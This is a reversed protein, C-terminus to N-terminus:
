DNKLIKIPNVVSAKILQHSVTLATFIFMLIGAIAFTSINIDIRFAFDKLWNHVVFYAVPWALIIGVLMIKILDKSMYLIISSISAGLIKRISIEKLKNKTTFTVLAFLGLCALSISIFTFVSFLKSLRNESQYLHNYETDIFYYEFPKKSQYSKYINSITNIQTSVNIHPNFHVYMSGSHKAFAKLSDSGVTIILPEVKNKLSSINFDKVVGLVNFKTGDMNIPVEIKNKNISLQRMAAENIVANFQTTLEASDATINKWKLGITKFFNNDVTVIQVDLSEETNQKQVSVVSPAQKFMNLTSASVSAVGSQLSVEHRFANYIKVMSPDLPIVMVKDKNMGIDKQQVFRLQEGALLSCIILTQSIFFQFVTLIKQSKLIKNQSFTINAANVFSSKVLYKIFLLSITLLAAILLVLIIVLVISYISLSSALQIDLSQYFFQGLCLFLFLSILFALVFLFISETLFQKGIELQSSGLLRRITTERTRKFSFSISLNLYNIISLILVIIGIGAFIYINTRQSGDGDLPNLHMRELPMLTFQIKSEFITSAKYEMNIKQTLAFQSKPDNLLFYTDYEGLGNDVEASGKTDSILVGADAKRESIPLLFDFDLSSNIPPAKIVGTIKLPVTDNYVLTKGVVDTENFYKKALVDTIVISNPSALVDNKNGYLFSFSFIQFFQEDTILYSEENFVHQINSQLICKKGNKIRVANLVEPSQSKVLKAFQNSLGSLYQDTGDTSKYKAFVKVIRKSNIHFTDFSYENVIFLLIFISSVMGICLGLINITSLLANKKFYRFFFKLYHNIM